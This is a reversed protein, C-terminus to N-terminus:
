HRHAHRVDGLGGRVVRIEPEGGLRTAHEGGHVAALLELQGLCGGAPKELDAHTDINTM